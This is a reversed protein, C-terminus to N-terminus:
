SSSMGLEPGPTVPLPTGLLTDIYTHGMEKGLDTIGMMPGDSSGIHQPLPILLIDPMQPSLTM